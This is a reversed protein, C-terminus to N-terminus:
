YDFEKGRTKSQPREVKQHTKSGDLQQNVGKGGGGSSSAEPKVGLNIYRHTSPLLEYRAGISSAEYVRQFTLMGPTTNLYFDDSQNNM